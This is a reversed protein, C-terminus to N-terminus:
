MHKLKEILRAYIPRMKEENTKEIVEDINIWEVGSNEDEKISLIENDDAEFLYEIDFHLHANVRKGRKIHSEVTVINLGFIENKLLKLNTIGTEEGVEKKAVNLMNSDGDAHGGVWAWSNYINHHIMLIKTRSKNTIWASATMHAIKNDRVLVNDNAKIFKLIVEKDEKEKEDYPQYEEIQRILEKM